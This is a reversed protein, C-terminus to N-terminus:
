IQDETLNEFLEVWGKADKPQAFMNPMYNMRRPQYFAIHDDWDRHQIDQWYEGRQLHEMLWLQLLLNCGEFHPAGQQCKELARYIEAIIMPVISFPQGGIGEILTKTIM